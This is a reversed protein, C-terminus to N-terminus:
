FGPNDAHYHLELKLPGDIDDIDAFDTMSIINV